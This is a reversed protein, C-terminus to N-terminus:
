LPLASGGSFLPRCHWCEANVGHTAVTVKFTDFTDFASIIL